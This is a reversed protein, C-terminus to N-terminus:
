ERRLDAYAVANPHLHALEELLNQKFRREESLTNRLQANKTELTLMMQDIAARNSEFSAEMTELSKQAEAHSNRGTIQSVKLQVIEENITTINKDLDGMEAEIGQLDGKLNVREKLM